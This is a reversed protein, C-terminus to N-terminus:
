DWDDVHTFKEFKEKDLGRFRPPVKDELEDDEPQWLRNWPDDFGDPYDPNNM